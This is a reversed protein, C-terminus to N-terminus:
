SRGFYSNFHIFQILDACLSKCCPVGLAGFDSDLGDLGFFAARSAPKFFASSSICVFSRSTFFFFFSFAFLLLFAITLCPVYPRTQSLYTSARNTIRFLIHQKKTKSDDANIADDDSDSGGHSNGRRSSLTRELMATTTQKPSHTHRTTGTFTISSSSSSPM